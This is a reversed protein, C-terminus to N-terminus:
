PIMIAGGNVAISQGTMYASDEGLLFAVAAAIDQPDGIRGLPIRSGLANLEDDSLEGRPQATDTVGPIVCNVRIGYPAWDLALSKTLAIIGGKTASYHAGKAAGALARGSAMNVIAGKGAARMPRAIARACLFTGTLNVRLVREWESLEMDLARARPFIGANNVLGQPTGWEREFAAVASEVEHAVGVDVRWARSQAGRKRCLNATEEAGDTQTDWVAVCTGTAAVRLAVARGIGQAAGTVIVRAPGAMEVGTIDGNKV